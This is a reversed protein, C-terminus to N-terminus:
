TKARAWYTRDRYVLDIKGERSLWGLSLFLLTQSYKLDSRIKLVSCEGQPTLYSWVEGAAHGIEHHM